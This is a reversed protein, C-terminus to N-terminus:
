TFELNQTVTQRHNPYANQIVYELEDEIQEFLSELEIDEDSHLAALTLLTLVHVDLVNSIEILKSLTPSKQGRELVSLYTRSSVDSFDEQTLKKAMRAQKIAKALAQRFKM